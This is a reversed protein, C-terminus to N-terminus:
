KLAFYDWNANWYEKRLNDLLDCTSSQFYLKNLYYYNNFDYYAEAAKETRKQEKEESTDGVYRVPSTLERMASDLLIIKKYMEDIIKLCSEHLLSKKNFQISIESKYRELETDLTLQYSKNTFDLEQKFKELKKNSSSEIIQKIFIGGITFIGLDHGLEILTM